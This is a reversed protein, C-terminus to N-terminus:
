NPNLKTNFFADHLKHYDIDVKGVKPRIKERMKTKLTKDSDKDQVTQRMEMIGTRAIFEPLRFPPKEFGRKGQLYKRKACWHKPVPVTNRYAKLYALLLPDKACVDWMEIVDPRPNLRKLKKKSLVEVGGSGSDLGGISGAKSRLGKNPDPDQSGSRKRAENASAEEALLAATRAKLNIDTHSAPKAPVSDAEDDILKFREFPGKYEFEIIEDEPEPDSEEDEHLGKTDNSIGNVLQPQNRLERRRKLAAKKRLKKKKNREQTRNLGYTFNITGFSQETSGSLTLAM